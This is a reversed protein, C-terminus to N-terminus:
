GRCEAVLRRLAESAPMGYAAGDAMSVAIPESTQALTGAFPDSAPLRGTVQPLPDTQATADIRRTEGGAMLAMDVAGGGEVLASRAFVLTEGDCRVSFAAETEPEGFLAAPAGAMRKSTWQGQMVADSGLEGDGTMPAGITARDPPASADDTMPEVDAVAEAPATESDVPEVDGGGDGCGALALAVTAAASITLHRM